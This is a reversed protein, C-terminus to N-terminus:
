APRSRTWSANTRSPTKCGSPLVFHATGSRRNCGTLCCESAAVPARGLAPVVRVGRWTRRRPTRATTSGRRQHPRRRDRFSHSPSSAPWSGPSSAPTPGMRVVVLRRLGPRTTGRSSVAARTWELRSISLSHSVTTRGPWRRKALSNFVFPDGWLEVSGCSSITDAGNIGYCGSGRAFIVHVQEPTLGLLMAASNRQPYVAQTASWITAQDNRVDAVACSSSSSSHMQYPHHYTAKVVTAAGALKPTVDGSDLLM